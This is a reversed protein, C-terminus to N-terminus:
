GPNQHPDDQENKFKRQQIKYIQTNRKTKIENKNKQRHCQVNAKSRFSEMDM